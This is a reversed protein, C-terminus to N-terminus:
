TLDALMEPEKFLDPAQMEALMEKVGAQNDKFRSLGTGDVSDVGMPLFHAIRTATNVRGVHVWKGIVKAAKICDAAYRSLKWETSGGIFIASILGWPIEIDEQGDQCVYALPWGSLEPYWHHFVELTRRASQPVDPVAVFRCLDKRGAERELLGRFVNPKFKAFAGNDICFGGGKRYAQHMGYPSFIQECKLGINQEAEDLCHNSIMVIM